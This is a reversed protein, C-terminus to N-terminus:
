VESKTGYIQYSGHKPPIYIGCPYYQPHGGLNSCLPVTLFTASTSTNSPICRIHTHAKRHKPAHVSPYPQLRESGPLLGAIIHTHSKRSRPECVSPYPHLGEYQPSSGRLQPHVCFGQHTCLFTPQLRELQIFDKDLAFSAQTIYKFLCWLLYLLVPHRTDNCLARPM